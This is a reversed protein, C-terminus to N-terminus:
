AITLGSSQPAGLVTWETNAATCVLYFSDKANTSAVSGASTTTSSGVVITQGVGCQVLWGGAGKGVVAMEDGISSSAPLTFTVLGANNAIYGNNSTMSQSTGTVLNWSFGGAGTASITISGAANVISINTGATLTAAVPTSGTSGIVVQGNTMSSTFAPIGSSNTVLAASATSALIALASATSYVIGGNSATLSANTGGRAM